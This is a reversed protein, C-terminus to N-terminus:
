RVNSPEQLVIQGDSNLRVHYGYFVPTAIGNPVARGNIMLPPPAPLDRRVVIPGIARLLLLNLANRFQESQVDIGAPVQALIDQSLQAIRQDLEAIKPDRVSSDSDSFVRSNTRCFGAFTTVKTRVAVSQMLTEAARSERFMESEYQQKQAMITQYDRQTMGPPLRTDGAEGAMGQVGSEGSAGQVGSDGTLKQLQQMIQQRQQPTRPSQLQKNLAQIQQSYQRFEPSNRMNHLLEEIEQQIPVGGNREGSGRRMFRGYQPQRQQQMLQNQQAHYLDIDQFTPASRVWGNRSYSGRDGAGYNLTYIYRNYDRTGQFERRPGWVPSMTNDSFHRGIHEHQWRDTADNYQARAADNAGTQFRHYLDSMQERNSTFDRYRPERLWRGVHDRRAAAQAMYEPNPGQREAGGDFQPMNFTNHRCLRREGSLIQIGVRMPCNM